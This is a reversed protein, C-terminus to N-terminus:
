VKSNVKSVHPELTVLVGVQSLRDILQPVSWGAWKKSNSLATQLQRLTSSAFLEPDTVVACTEIAVPPDKLKWEVLRVGRPIARIARWTTDGASALQEPVAVQVISIEAQASGDFGVFGPNSPKSPENPTLRTITPSRPRWDMWRSRKTTKTSSTIM